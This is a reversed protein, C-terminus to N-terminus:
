RSDGRRQGFAASLTATVTVAAGENVPNPSASLSVTPLDGPADNQLIFTNDNTGM